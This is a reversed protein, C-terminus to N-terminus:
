LTNICLLFLKTWLFPCPLHLILRQLRVHLHSKLFITLLNRSRNGKKPTENNYLRLFTRHSVCLCFLSPREDYKLILTPSLLNESYPMRFHELQTPEPRSVFFFYKSFCSWPCVSWSIKALRKLVIGGTPDIEYVNYTRLKCGDCFLSACKSFLAHM